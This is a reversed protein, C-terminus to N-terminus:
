RGGPGIGAAALVGAGGVPVTWAGVRNQIEGGSANAAGGVASAFGAAQFANEVQITASHVLLFTWQPSRAAPVGWSVISNIRLRELTSVPSHSSTQEGRAASTRVRVMRWVLSRCARM